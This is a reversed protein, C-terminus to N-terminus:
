CCFPSDLWFKGLNSWAYSCDPSRALAAKLFDVSRSFWTMCINYLGLQHWQVNDDPDEQIAQFSPKLFFYLM